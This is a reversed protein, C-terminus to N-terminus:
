NKQLIVHQSKM